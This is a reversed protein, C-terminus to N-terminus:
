WRSWWSEHAGFVLTVYRVQREPNPVILGCHPCVDRCEELKELVYGCDPCGRPSRQELMKARRMM